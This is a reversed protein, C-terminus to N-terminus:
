KSARAKQEMHDQYLQYEYNTLYELWIDTAMLVEKPLDTRGSEIIERILARKM